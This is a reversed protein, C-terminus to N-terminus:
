FEGLLEKQLTGFRLEAYAECDFAGVIVGKNRLSMHSQKFSTLDGMRGILTLQATTEILVSLIAELKAHLTQTVGPALECVKTEDFLTFVFSDQVKHRLVNVDYDVNRMRNYWDDLTISLWRAHLLHLDAEPTERRERAFQRDLYSHWDGAHDREVGAHMDRKQQGAPAAVIESWYGPNDSYDIRLLV